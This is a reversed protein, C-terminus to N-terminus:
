GHLDRTVWTAVSPDNEVAVVSLKQLQGEDQPWLIWQNVTLGLLGAGISSTVSAQYSPMPPAPHVVQSFCKTPSGFTYEVFSGVTVLNSRSPVTHAMKLKKLLLQSILDDESLVAMTTIYHRETDLVQFRSERHLLEWITGLCDADSPADGLALAASM